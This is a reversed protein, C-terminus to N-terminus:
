TGSITPQVHKRMYPYGESLATLQNWFFLVLHTICLPLSESVLILLTISYKVHHTLFIINMALYTSRSTLGVPLYM